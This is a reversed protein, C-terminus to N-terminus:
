LQNAPSSKSSLRALFLHNPIRPSTMTNPPIPLPYPHDAFSPHQPNMTARPPDDSHSENLIYIAWVSSQRLLPLYNSGSFSVQIPVTVDLKSLKRTATLLAFFLSGYRSARLFLFGTSIGVMFLASAVFNPLAFPFKLMFKNNGFLGPMHEAPKAFFGGFSPGFISGLSWVLPMISFARPQLEREPVMEAVM